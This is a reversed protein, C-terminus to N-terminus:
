RSYKAILERATAVLGAGDDGAETRAKIWQDVVPATAAKWAELDEGDVLTVVGNHRAIAERGLADWEDWLRGGEASLAAGSNDDIVKKLDDPLREYSAKNMVFLFVATYLARDGMLETVHDTLEEVKFAPVVEYPFMVGDVVGKALAEPVGPAPIGIPSAGILTLTDNIARSPVRVRVGKLDEPRRVVRGKIFLNGKGHTDVALVKVDALEDAAKTTYYEWIAQSTIEGRDSAIFPLEFVELRPFRGPTYGALTWVIDVVGDRAQDYLQPAKGGLQMSPYVEVRIRGDSAAEIRKAWPELFGRHEVGVAPLFHHLRLTFEPKTEARAPLSAGALAAFLAVVLALARTPHM